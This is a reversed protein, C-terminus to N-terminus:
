AAEENSFYIGLAFGWVISGIVSWHLFTDESIFGLLHLCLPLTLVPIIAIGVSQFSKGFVGFPALFMIGLVYISMISIVSAIFLGLALATLGLAAMPDHEYVLYLIVAFIGLAIWFYM